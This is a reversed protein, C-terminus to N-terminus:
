SSPRSISIPRASRGPRFRGWPGKKRDRSGPPSVSAALGKRCLGVRQRIRRRTLWLQPYESCDLPVDEGKREDLAVVLEMAGADDSNQILEKIVGGGFSFGGGSSMQELFTRIARAVDYRQGSRSGVTPTLPM